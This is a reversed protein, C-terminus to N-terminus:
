DGVEMENEFSDDVVESEGSSNASQNLRSADSDDAIKNAGNNHVENQETVVGNLLHENEGDQRETASKATEEFARPNITLSMTCNNTKYIGVLHDALEFM